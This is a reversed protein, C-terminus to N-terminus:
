DAGDLREYIPGYAEEIAEPDLLGRPFRGDQGEEDSPENKQAVIERMRRKERAYSARARALSAKRRRENGSYRCGSLLTSTLVIVVV